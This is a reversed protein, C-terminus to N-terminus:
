GRVGRVVVCAGRYTCRCVRVSVHSGWGEQVQLHTGEFTTGFVRQIVQYVWANVLLYDDSIDSGVDAGDGSREPWAFGRYLDVLERVADYRDDQPQQPLFALWDALFETSARDVQGNGGLNFACGRDIWEPIRQMSEYNVAEPPSHHYHNHLPFHLRSFTTSCRSNPDYNSSNYFRKDSLISYGCGGGM